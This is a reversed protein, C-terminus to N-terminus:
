RPPAAPAGPEGGKRADTGDDPAFPTKVRPGSIAQRVGGPLSAPGPSPAVVMPQGAVTATAPSGPPLGAARMASRASAEDPFSGLEPLSAPASPAEGAPAQASPASPTTAPAATTTQAAAAMATAMAAAALGVAIM